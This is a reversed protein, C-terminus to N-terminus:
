IHQDVSYPTFPIMLAHNDVVKWYVCLVGDITLLLMEEVFHIM